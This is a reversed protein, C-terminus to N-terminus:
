VALEGRYQMEKPNFRAKVQLPGMATSFSLLKADSVDVLQQLFGFLLTSTDKSDPQIIGPQIPDKGKAQLSTVQKLADYSEDSSSGSIVPVGSVSIVYHHAFEPPLELKLALQIPKASAWRVTGQFNPSLGPDPATIPGSNRSYRGSRGAPRTTGPNPGSGPLHLNVPKAWPSANLLQQIEASSWNGPDETNWFEPPKAACACAALASVILSRRSPLIARPM